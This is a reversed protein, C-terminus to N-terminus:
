RNAKKERFSYYFIMGAAATLIGAFSEFPKYILGYILIWMNILVFILPLVPFLKMRYAPAADRYRKRLIFLGAVALLTFLNLTFGIYTIVEEFTSTLIYACALVSQIVIARVPIERVSMKRFWNIAKYDEGMVQTVRPGTLTLASVTSLLLLSFILGMIKAANTNFVQDGFLYGIEIKGSMETVPIVKLFSYTILVYLSTM